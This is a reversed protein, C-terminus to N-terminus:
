GWEWIENKKGRRDKINITENSWTKRVRSIYLRTSFVWHYTCVKRARPWMALLFYASIFQQELRRRFKGNTYITKFRLNEWLKKRELFRELIEKDLPPCLKSLLSSTQTNRQPSMVIIMIGGTIITITWNKKDM